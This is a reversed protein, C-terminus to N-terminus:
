SLWVKIFSRGVAVVRDWYEEFTLKITKDGEKWKLAVAKPHEKVIDKFFKPITTPEESSLGAEGIDLDFAIVYLLLFM